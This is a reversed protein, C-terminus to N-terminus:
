AKGLQDILKQVDKRSIEQEPKCGHACELGEAVGYLRCILPRSEYISCRKNVLFECSMTEENLKLHRRGPALEPAEYHKGLARSIHLQEAFEIPALTCNDHCSGKCSVTPVQDYIALLNKIRKGTSAV